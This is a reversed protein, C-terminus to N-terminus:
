GNDWRRQGKSLINYQSMTFTVTAEMPALNALQKTIRIKLDTIMYVDSNTSIESGNNVKNLSNGAFLVALPPSSKLRRPKIDNDYSPYLFSRYYNLKNSIDLRGSIKTNTSTSFASSNIAGSDVLGAITGALGANASLTQLGSNDLSDISNDKAINFDSTDKTVLTEFTITRPGSSMWQYVPGSQGPIQTPIWNAKKIEEYSEPNLLFLGLENRLIKGDKNVKFLAARCLNSLLKSDVDAPKNIKTKSAIAM